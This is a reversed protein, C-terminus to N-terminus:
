KADHNIKLCSPADHNKQMMILRPAAPADHNKQMMILRSAAQPM